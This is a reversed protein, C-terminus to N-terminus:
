EIIQEPEIIEGPKIIKGASIKNNYGIVAGLKKKTKGPRDEIHTRLRPPEADKPLINLTTVNTEIITNEGVITDMLLIKSHLRVYPQINSFRIETYAGIRVNEEINTYDRIFSHAGIFSDRGIYLPGKLVAYHDIYANDEIVVPGDIVATKEIVAKSGIVIGHIRNLLQYQAELLDTPYGIDIWSGGWYVARVKGSTALTNLAQPLTYGKKLQDLIHTPLIYVGGAIYLPQDTEIVQELVNRVYGYEDVVLLGYTKAHEPDLPVALLTADPEESLHTSLLQSYADPEVIIDGFSLFFYDTDNVFEECALLADHVSEGITQQVPKLSGMSHRLAERFVSEEGVRYVLLTEARSVEQLSNLPYSIIPKGMIRLLVKNSGPPVLISLEKKARGGALIINKV